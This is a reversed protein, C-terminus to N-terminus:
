ATSDSKSGQAKAYARIWITQPLCKTQRPVTSVAIGILEIKRGFGNKQNALAMEQCSDCCAKIM